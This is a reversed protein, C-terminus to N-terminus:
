HDTAIVKLQRLMFAHLSRPTVAFSMVVAGAGYLLAAASPHSQWLAASEYRWSAALSAMVVRDINPHITTELLKKMGQLGLLEVVGSLGM